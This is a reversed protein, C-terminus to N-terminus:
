TLSEPFLYRFTFNFVGCSLGILFDSARLNWTIVPCPFALLSLQCTFLLFSTWSVPAQFLFCWIVTWLFWVSLKGWKLCFMNKVWWLSYWISGGPLSISQIIPNVNENFFFFLCGCVCFYICWLGLFLVSRFYVFCFRCTCLIRFDLLLLHIRSFMGLKCICFFDTEMESSVRIHQEYTHHPQKKKNQKNKAAM